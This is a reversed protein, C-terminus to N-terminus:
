ECKPTVPLALTTEKNFSFSSLLTQGGEVSV